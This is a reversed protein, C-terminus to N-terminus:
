QEREPEGFLDRHAFLKRGESVDTSTPVENGAQAGPADTTVSAEGGAQSASEIQPFAHGEQLGRGALVHRRHRLARQGPTLSVEECDRGFGDYLSSPSQKNYITMM